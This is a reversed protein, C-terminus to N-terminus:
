DWKLFPDKNKSIIIDDSEMFFDDIYKKFNSIDNESKIVPIYPAKLNQLLLNTWDFGKFFPDFILDSIGKKGFGLRKKPELKLLHKILSKAEPSMNKPFNIKGELIKQQIKVPDMDEFPTHGVILHYLFIGLTWFDHSKTHGKRVLMEPSAYEPTGCLTNTYDSKLMKCDTFNTIKIYGSSTLFINEPCINRMIINQRHLYDMVTILIACYFKAQEETIKEAGILLALDGGQVFELLLYLYRSDTYNIGKLQIIFPHYIKRLIKYENYLHEVTKSELVDVKRLIKMCFYQDNEKHKALKIICNNIKAIVELLDYYNLNIKEVVESHSDKIKITARRKPNFLVIKKKNYSM